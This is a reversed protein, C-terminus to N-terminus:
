TKKAAPAGFSTMSLGKLSSKPSANSPTHTQSPAPPGAPPQPPKGGQSPKEQVPKSQTPAVGQGPKRQPPPKASSPSKPSAPKQPQKPSSPTLAQPVPKKSPTQADEKKKVGKAPEKKSPTLSGKKSPTVSGKKSPTVSQKGVKSGSRSVPKAFSPADLLQSGGGFHPLDEGYTEKHIPTVFTDEDLVDFASKKASIHSKTLGGVEELILLLELRRREIEKVKEDVKPTESKASLPKNESLISTNVLLENEKNVVNDAQITRTKKPTSLRIFSEKQLNATKKATEAAELEAYRVLDIVERCNRCQICCGKDAYKKELYDAVTTRTQNQKIEPPVTQTSITRTVKKTPPEPQPQGKVSPAQNFNLSSPVASVPFPNPSPEDLPDSPLECVTPMGLPEQKTTKNNLFRRQLEVIEEMLEQKTYHTTVHPPARTESSEHEVSLPDQASSKGPTKGRVSKTASARREIELQDTLIEKASSTIEELQSKMTDIKSQRVRSKSELKKLSEDLRVQIFNIMMSLLISNPQVSAEHNDPNLADAWSGAHSNAGSSFRRRVEPKAGPVQTGINTANTNNIDKFM